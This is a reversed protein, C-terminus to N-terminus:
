AAGGNKIVRHLSSERAACWMRPIPRAVSICTEAFKICRSQARFDQRAIDSSRASLCQAERLTLLDAFTTRLASHAQMNECVHYIGASSPFGRAPHNQVREDLCHARRRTLLDACTTGLTYHTQMICNRLSDRRQHCADVPFRLDGCKRLHQVFQPCLHAYVTLCFRTCSVTWLVTGSSSPNVATFSALRSTSSVCRNSTFPAVQTKYKGADTQCWQRLKSLVCEM